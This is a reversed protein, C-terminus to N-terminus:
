KKKQKAFVNASEYKIGRAHWLKLKFTLRHISPCIKFISNNSVDSHTHSATFLSDVNTKTVELVISVLCFCLTVTLCHLTSCFAIESCSDDDPMPRCCCTAVFLVHVNYSACEICCFLEAHFKPTALLIPLASFM